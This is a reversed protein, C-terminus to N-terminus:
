DEGNDPPPSTEATNASPPAELPPEYLATNKSLGRKELRADAFYRLATYIVTFVPVCVLMGIFGFFGGGLLISFIIWFGSIGSRSGLILPGLFNGDFQQLITIFIVFAFCQSGSQTLILLASPVAGIFPGFFPIINTIGVFVSVLLAYPTKAIICFLYCICGIILSDLLKGGIFRLFAKDTFRAASLFARVTKEPFVAYLLKKVRALFREKSYLLYVSVIIGILLNFLGRVFSVVRLSIDLLLDKLQGPADNTAWDDLFSIVRDVIDSIYEGARPFSDAFDNIRAAARDIYGPLSIVLTEVSSYIQPVVLVAFLTLLIVFLLVILATSVGRSFPFARNPHKKFLKVGLPLFLKKQVRTVIPNLLYAIALGWIIPSLYYFFKSVAASIASGRQVLAFLLVSAAIVLFATVGWKVCGNDWKIKKL